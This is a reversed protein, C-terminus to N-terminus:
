LSISVIEQGRVVAKVPQNTKFSNAINAMQTVFDEHTVPLRYIGAHRSFTVNVHHPESSFGMVEESFEENWSMTSSM